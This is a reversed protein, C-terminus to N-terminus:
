SNNKIGESWYLLGVWFGRNGIIWYSHSFKWIKSNGGLVRTTVIKNKKLYYKYLVDFIM